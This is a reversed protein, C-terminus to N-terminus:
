IPHICNCSGSLYHHFICLADEPTVSGSGNCDASCEQQATPDPIIGLYLQFASLSDQPSLNGNQDFDGNNICTTPTATPTPTSTPPPSPTSTPAPTGEPHSLNDNPDTGETFELNDSYGDGDSDVGCPNTIANDLGFSIEEADTLGDSDTDSSGINMEGLDWTGNGNIDELCDPVNDQDVDPLEFTTLGVNMHGNTQHSSTKLAINRWGGPIDINFPLFPNPYEDWEVFRVNDFYAYIYDSTTPHELKFKITVWGFSSNPVTVFNEFYTWEANGSVPGILTIEQGMDYDYPYYYFKTSATVNRANVLRYYGSLMYTKGYSVPMRWKSEVVVDSSSPSSTRLRLCYEGQYPNYDSIKASNTQPVDWGIGDMVDDDYDENEFDGFMFLDRGLLVTKSGTVGSISNISSLYENEPIVISSSIYASAASRYSTPMSYDSSNANSSYETDPAVVIGRGLNYDPLIFTDLFESLAMIRNNIRYGAGGSLFRPQYDEIYVPLTSLQHFGTEDGRAELMYTMMTVQYKQDFIFNGLSYIIPKGNYYEIGQNVHPHHCVVMDAGLDIALKAYLEVYNSPTSSYEVGGHILVVSLDSVAMCQNLARNLNQSNLYLVGPKEYGSAWFPQENSSHGVISCLGIFGVRLGDFCLTQPLSADFRDMGGGVHSIVYNRAFWSYAIPNDLVQLTEQLGAEMYDLLHNNALSVLTAGNETLGAVSDPRSRFTISKTPHSYGEDTLPSELNLIRADSFCRRTHHAINAAGEGHDNPLILSGDNDGVYGDGDADEYRRAFMCDGGFLLDIARPYGGTDVHFSALGTLDTDDIVECLVNYYGADEFAHVPNASESESGDGFDWHYTFQTSDPDTISCSFNVNQGPNAILDPGLDVTPAKPESDTIDTIQDFYARGSAGSDEDNIFILSSLSVPFSDGYLDAWDEGVPLKFRQFSYYTSKWGAYSAEWPIDTPPSNYAELIYRIENGGQKIGFGQITGQSPAYLYVEWVSDKEIQINQGTLDLLKWNNGYLYLSRTSGEAGHSTDVRWYNPELDEGSSYSSILETNFPPEFDEIITDAFGHPIQMLITTFFFFLGYKIQM